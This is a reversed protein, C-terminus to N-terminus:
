LFTERYYYLQQYCNTFNWKLDHGEFGWDQNKNILRKWKFPSLRKYSAGDFAFEVGNCILVSAVHERGTDRIVAADLVYKINNITIADQRDMIKANDLIELIIIEPQSKRNTKIISTILNESASTNCEIVQINLDKNNLYKMIGLYYELPNGFKNANPIASYNKTDRSKNIADYIKRIILNTNLLYNLSRFARNQSAEIALNLIFFAKALNDPIPKNDLQRGEIMLQRFFKFFKRGKDSIFFTVFMTNFWCNSLYQKPPIIEGCEVKNNKLNKLFFATVRRDQYDLCLSSHRPDINIKLLSNNCIFFEKPSTATKSVLYKNIEPSYSNSNSVAVLQTADNTGKLINNAIENSLRTDLSPTMNKIILGPRLAKKFGRKLTLKLTRKKKYKIKKDNKYTYKLMYM